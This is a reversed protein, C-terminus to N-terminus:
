IRRVKNSINSMHISNGHHTGHKEYRHHIDDEDNYTDMMDLSDMMVPRIKKNTSFVGPDAAVSRLLKEDSIVFAYDFVPCAVYLPLSFFFIEFIKKEKKEKKEKRRTKM